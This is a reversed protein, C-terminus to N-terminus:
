QSCQMVSAGIDRTGQILFIQTHIHSLVDIFSRFQLNHVVSEINISDYRILNQKIM